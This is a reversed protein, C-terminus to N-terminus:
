SNELLGQLTGDEGHAGHIVPFVIDLPLHKKRQFRGFGRKCVLFRAKHGFEIIVKESNSDNPLNGNTFAELKLFNKNTLWEGTKTIYIPTVRYRGNLAALVQHATIISVEHEPSRGGFIVAVSKQADGM